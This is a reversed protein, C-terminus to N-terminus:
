ARRFEIPAISPSRAVPKNRDIRTCSTVFIAKSCHWGDGLLPDSVPKPHVLVLSVLAACALTATIFALAKRNRLLGAM